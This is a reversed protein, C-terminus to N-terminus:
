KARGSRDMRAVDASRDKLQQQEKVYSLPQGVEEDEDSLGARSGKELLQEREYDKLYMPKKSTKDRAIDDNGDSSSSNEEQCFKFNSDYIKADRHKM